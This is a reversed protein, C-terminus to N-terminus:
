PLPTMVRPGGLGGRVGALHKGPSLSEYTSATQFDDPPGARSRRRSPTSQLAFCHSVCSRRKPATFLIQDQILDVLITKFTYLYSRGPVMLAEPSTGQIQLVHEPLYKIRCSTLFINPPKYFHIDLFKLKILMM